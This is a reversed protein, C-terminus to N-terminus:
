SCGLDRRARQESLDVAAPLDFCGPQRWVAHTLDKEFASLLSAHLACERFWDARVAQASAEHRSGVAVAHRIFLDHAVGPM